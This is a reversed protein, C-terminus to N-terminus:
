GKMRKIFRENRNGKHYADKEYIWASFEYFFSDNRAHLWIHIIVDRNANTNACVNEGYQSNFIIVHSDCHM